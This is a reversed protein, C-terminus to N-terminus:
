RAKAASLAASLAYMPFHAACYWLYRVPFGAADPNLVNGNLATKAHHELTGYRFM